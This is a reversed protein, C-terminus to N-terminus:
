VGAAAAAANAAPQQQNAAVMAEFAADGLRARLMPEMSKLTAIAKNFKELDKKADGGKGDRVDQALQKFAAAAKESEHAKHDYYLAENVFDTKAMPLNKKSDYDTPIATLVPSGEARYVLRPARKARTKKVPDAAGTAPEVPGNIAPAVAGAPTGTPGTVDGPVAAPPLPAAPQPVAGLAAGLPSVGAPVGTPAALPPLPAVGAPVGPVPPLQSM